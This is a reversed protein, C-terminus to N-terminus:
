NWESPKILDFGSETRVKDPLQSDKIKKRGIMFSATAVIELETSRRNPPFAVVVRKNPFRQLVTEILPTLDSDGSIVIATDFADDQADVLLQVAINVDTMKEEYTQWSTNCTFCKRNKKLYRGFYLHTRPLTGLADLYISQRNRDPSNGDEDSIRTTFYRVIILYQDPKLLNTALKQVDLWYFSRWNNGKLGYYLNFGDIYVAVSNM